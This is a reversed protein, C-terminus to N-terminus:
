TVGCGNLHASYQKDTGMIHKNLWDQLFKSVEMTLTIKGAQYDNQLSLVKATMKQHKAKHEEFGPYDHKAMLEEEYNFHTRTYTILKMLITGMLEKGKNSQM